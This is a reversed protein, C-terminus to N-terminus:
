RAEIGKQQDGFLFRAPDRELQGAVRNLTTVLLRADALFQTLEYLGSQGFDRLAGRNEAAIARVDEALRNFRQATQTLAAATEGSQGALKHVDDGLLVATKHLDDALTNLSAMLVPADRLTKRLDERSDALAGTLIDLNAFVNGIARRNEDNLLDNARVALETLAATVEPVSEFVRELSSPKSPIVPRRKELRPELPPASSTGGSLQVFSLGTIGQMQLQAVTDTKIPTGPRLGVTVQILEVDKEDIAIDTVRGVPVGRLLVQSGNQLGTVAGNFYIYYYVSDDKLNSRSIWLAFGFGGAILALVFAGVVLYSARTEM